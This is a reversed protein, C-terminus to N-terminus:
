EGMLREKPSHNVVLLRATAYPITREQLFMTPDAQGNRSRPRRSWYPKGVVSRIQVPMTPPVLRMPIKRIGVCGERSMGGLWRGRLIGRQGEEFMLGDANVAYRDDELTRAVADGLGVQVGVRM